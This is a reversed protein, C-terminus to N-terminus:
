QLNIFIYSIELFYKWTSRLESLVLTSNTENWLWKRGKLFNIHACKNENLAKINYKTHVAADYM